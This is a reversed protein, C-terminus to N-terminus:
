GGGVARLQRKVARLAASYTSVVAKQGTQRAQKHRNRIETELTSKRSLLLDRMTVALPARSAPRATAEGLHKM